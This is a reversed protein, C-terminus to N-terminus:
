DDAQQQLMTNGEDGEGRVIHQEWLGWFGEAYIFLDAADVRLMSLRM